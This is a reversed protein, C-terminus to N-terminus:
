SFRNKNTKMSRLGKAVNYKKKKVMKKKVKKYLILYILM